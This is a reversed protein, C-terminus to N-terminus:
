RGALGPSFVQFRLVDAASGTRVGPRAELPRGDLDVIGPLLVIEVV